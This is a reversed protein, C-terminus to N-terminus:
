SHSDCKTQQLAQDLQQCTSLTTALHGSLQSKELEFAGLTVSHQAQQQELASQLSDALQMAGKVREEVGQKVEDFWPGTQREVARCLRECYQLAAWKDIESHKLWWSKGGGGATSLHFPM